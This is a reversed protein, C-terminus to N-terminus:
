QSDERRGMEGSNAPAIDDADPSIDGVQCSGAGSRYLRRARRTRWPFFGAAGPVLFVAWAALGGVYRALASTDGDLTSLGYFLAVPLAVLGTLPPIWRLAHRAPYGREAVLVLLMGAASCWGVCTIIWELTSVVEEGPALREVM